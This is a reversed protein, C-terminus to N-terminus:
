RRAMKIRMLAVALCVVGVFALLVARTRDDNWLSQATTIAIAGAVILLAPRLYQIAM